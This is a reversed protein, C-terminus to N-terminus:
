GSSVGVPDDTIPTFVDPDAERFWVACKFALEAADIVCRLKNQVIQLKVSLQICIFGMSWDNMRHLFSPALALQEKPVRCM